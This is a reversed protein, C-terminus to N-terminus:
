SAMGSFVYGRGRVAKLWGGKRTAGELKRRIRSVMVDVARDFAQYTAGYLGRYIEERSVVMGKRRVMFLLFEFERGTTDLRAGECWAERRSLDLMLPGCHLAKDFVANSSWARRLLAQLRAVLLEPGIPKILYDDGGSRLGLVQDKDDGRGTLFLIPGSFHSRLRKCLTFGNVRPLMVDLMILDPGYATVRSNLDAGSSLHLVGYGANELTKGIMDALEPDDEVYLIKILNGEMNEKEEFQRAGFPRQFIFM